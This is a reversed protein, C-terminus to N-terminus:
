LFSIRKEYRQCSRHEMDDKILGLNRRIGAVDDTQAGVGSRLQMQNAREAEFKVVSLQAACSEIIVFVGRQAHM